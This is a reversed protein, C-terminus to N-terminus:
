ASIGVYYPMQLICIQANVLSIIKLFSCMPASYFWACIEVSVCIVAKIM